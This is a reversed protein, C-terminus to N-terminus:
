ANQQPTYPCSTQHIIGTNQFFDHLSTNLFETDNDSRITKINTQFQTQIHVYFTKLTSGVHHKSPLLYTSTARSYDDVITLFYNCKNLTYHRYPGWVDIHILDFANIAHSNSSPFPLQTQKAMPCITCKNFQNCEIVSSLFPIRKLVQLSSHGLRAHWLHTNSSNSLVTSSTSTNPAPIFLYLGHHLTGFAAKVNLDQYFCRDHTFIISHLTAKTLISISILNYAFEPIYLVTHLIINTQLAVTGIQDVLVTHGNPLNVQIPAPCKYLNTMKSINTCIHDTAGSDLVWADKFQSVYSAVFSHVCARLISFIGAYNEHGQQTNQMMLMLQNLQNQLTDMMAAM